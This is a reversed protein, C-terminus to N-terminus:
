NPWANKAYFEHAHSFHFHIAALLCGAFEFLAYWIWDTMDPLFHEATIIVPLELGKKVTTNVVEVIDSTVNYSSFPSHMQVELGVAVAPNIVGGSISGVAFAAIAVCQGIAFAAYFNKKPPGAHGPHAHSTTSVSLFVLCILYTFMLESVFVKAWSSGKAPHVGYIESSYPTESNILAMFFGGCVTALVQMVIYLALKGPPSKSRGSLWVAASVAPNFHGGSVDGLSYIMCALAAGVSWGIQRSHAKMNLSVTVFLVLTGIFESLAKSDTSPPMRQLAAEDHFREDEPRVAKFLMVAFCAGIFHFILYVFVTGLHLVGYGIVIAPNFFAGSIPACPYGGAIIVLGIALAYSQNRDNSPNNRKSAACNLIVFCLLSSYFIECFGASVVGFKENPQITLNGNFMTFITWAALVAAIIQVIIYLLVSGWELKGLFGLAISVAPNLYGGSVPEVSYILVMLVAGIALPNWAPDAFTACYGVTLALLFTAFFECFYPAVKDLFGNPKVQPILVGDPLYKRQQVASAPPVGRGLPQRITSYPSM